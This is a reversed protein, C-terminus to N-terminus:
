FPLDDEVEGGFSTDSLNAPEFNSNVKAAVPQPTPSASQSPLEGPVAGSIASVVDIKWGRLETYWRENYERSEANVAVKLLDGLQLRKLTEVKEGWASICVKKPYQEQTELIFEQKIWAGNKGEGTVSSLVKVLKGQLEM